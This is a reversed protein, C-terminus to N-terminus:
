QFSRNRQDSRLPPATIQRQIAQDSKLAGYRKAATDIRGKDLKRTTTPSNKTEDTM